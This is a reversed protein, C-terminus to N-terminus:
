IQCHSAPSRATRKRCMDDRTPSTTKLIESALRENRCPSSKERAEARVQEAVVEAAKIKSHARSLAGNLRADLAPLLVHFNM